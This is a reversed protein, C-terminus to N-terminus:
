DRLFMLGEKSVRSLGVPLDALAYVQWFDSRQILFGVSRFQFMVGRPSLVGHVLPLARLDDHLQVQPVTLLCAAPHRSSVFRTTSRHM